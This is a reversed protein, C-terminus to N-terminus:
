EHSIVTLKPKNFYNLGFLLFTIFATVLWPFLGTYMILASKIVAVPQYFVEWSNLRGFRGMAVGIGSLLCLIFYGYIRVAKWKKLALPLRALMLRVSFLWSLLGTFSLVAILYIVFGEYGKNLPIHIVDTIIYPANPLFLLWLFASFFRIGKHASSNAKIAFYFPLLALFVNWTLSLFIERHVFLYSFLAPVIGVLTLIMLLEYQNRLRKM